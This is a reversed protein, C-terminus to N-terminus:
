WLFYHLVLFFYRSGRLTDPLSSKQLLMNEINTIFTYWPLHNHVSVPRIHTLRGEATKFKIFCTHTFLYSCFCGTGTGVVPPPSGKCIVSVRRYRFPGRARINQMINTDKETIANNTTYLNVRESWDGNIKAVPDTTKKKKAYWCFDCLLIDAPGANSSLGSLFKWLPGFGSEAARNLGRSKM